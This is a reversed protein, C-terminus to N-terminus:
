IIRTNNEQFLREVKRIKRKDFLLVIVRDGTEIMANHHGMIVRNKRVIALISAEEPLPVDKIYRGVVKSTEKNGDVIMEIAETTGRRLSHVNVIHGRRIHTLLTGVMVQQPSIVVDIDGGEVLDLYSPRTILAMAKRAGLRKALLASMINTEDNNTVACFVDTNEINESLLLEKDAADGELVIGTTLHTVLPEIRLPNHEIVKVEFEKELATALRTGINGGGAIIIRQNAPKLPILTSMVSRINQREALFFVEDNPEIITSGTPTIPAGQRFIAAIETDLNGLCAPLEKLPHLVMPGSGTKTKIAVLQLKQNAFDLVQLADPYEILRRIYNSIVQEPSILVDIPFAPAGFLEEHALYHLSRIRAIKTPIQFLTAAVQCAVLNTEDNNTVAILMDADEAGGRKLTSPYAANGAITLIDMRKQLSRLREGNIDIITIDNHETALHEALTTGVQGAGLIIIKM